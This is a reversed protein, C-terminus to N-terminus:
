EFVNVKDLLAKEFDGFTINSTLEVGIRFRNPEFILDKALAKNHESLSSFECTIGALIGKERGSGCSVTKIGKDFLAVMAKYFLPSCFLHITDRNFEQGSDVTSMMDVIDNALTNKDITNYM